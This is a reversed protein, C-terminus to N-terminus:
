LIDLIGSQGDTLTSVAARYNVSTAFRANWPLPDPDCVGGLAVAAFARTLPTLREDQLMQVLPPVSRRDGLQGLASSVASLRALGGDIQQLLSLLSEVITADGLRGLATAYQVLLQPKRMSQALLDRLVPASRRDELLALGLALQGGVDERGGHDALLQRIPDAAEERRALGLAIATASLASPARAQDLVKQLAEGVVPDPEPTRGNKRADAAAREVMAGLALAIWPQEIARTGRGLEALLASKAARGGIRGLAMAAFYRTQHDRHHLYTELLLKGDAAGKGTEDDFPEALMGLAIACSQFVHDNSKAAKREDPDLSALLIAAFHTRFEDRRPHMEGLLAAIAVPCQAQVTQAGAGLPQDFFQWLGAIAADRVAASAADNAVPLQALAAIAAVGVERGTSSVGSEQLCDLLTRVVTPTRAPELRSLCLGLGYCAFARVREDVRSRAVARQGIEDDAALGLLLEVDDKACQRAIGIALAATERIEQDHSRLLSRFLEHLRGGRPDRGIKALAITCSSITDRDSARELAAVLAPVVVDGVERASPPEIASDVAAHRGLFVDTAALARRLELGDRLRLWPDKRFEWCYEWSTLDGDVYIGRNSGATPGAAAGGTAPAAPATATGAGPSAPGSSAGSGKTVDGSGKTSTSGSSPPVVSSPGRYQGGHAHLCAAVALSLIATRLEHHM